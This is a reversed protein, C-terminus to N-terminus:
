NYICLSLYMKYLSMSQIDISIHTLHMTNQFDVLNIKVQVKLMFKLHENVQKVTSIKESESLALGKRLNLHLINLM